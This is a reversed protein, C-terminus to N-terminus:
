YAPFRWPTSRRLIILTVQSFDALSMQEFLLYLFPDTARKLLVGTKAADRNCDSQHLRTQSSHLSQLLRVEHFM